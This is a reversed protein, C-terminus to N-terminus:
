AFAQLIVTALALTMSAILTEVAEVIKRLAYGPADFLDALMSLLGETLAVTFGLHTVTHLAFDASYPLLLAIVAATGGCLITKWTAETLVARAPLATPM